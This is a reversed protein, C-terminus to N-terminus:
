KGYNHLPGIENQDLYIICVAFFIIWPFKQSPAGRSFLCGGGGAINNKINTERLLRQIGVIFNRTITSNM